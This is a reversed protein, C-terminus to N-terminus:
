NSVHNKGFTRIIEERLEIDVELDISDINNFKLAMTDILKLKEFDKYVREINEIFFSKDPNEDELYGDVYRQLQYIMGIRYYNITELSLDLSLDEIKM